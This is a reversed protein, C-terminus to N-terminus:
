FDARLGFQIQRRDGSVGSIQGFLPSAPNTNFGSFRHRNFLNLFEGRFQVRIGEKPVFNKQLSVDENYSGFNRLQSVLRPATGRAYRDITAPNIVMSTNIYQKGARANSIDTMDFASASWNSNLMSKGDPNIIFARNTAFNMNPTGTAGFGVPTGSAYNGIYQLTWGGIAFNLPVSWGGGFRRGRGFPLDYSGGIKVIHTQDFELVSKELSLNYYDMPRGSNQGWTDGFASSINGLNKSFTYNAQWQLGHSYRKNLQVQLAQYNSFGLPANNSYIPNNWSM